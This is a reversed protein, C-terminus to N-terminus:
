IKVGAVMVSVKHNIQFVNVLSEKLPREVVVGIVAQKIEVLMEILILIMVLKPLVPVHFLIQGLKIGNGLCVRM